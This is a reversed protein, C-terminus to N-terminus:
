LTAENPEPGYPGPFPDFLAPTETARSVLLHTPGSLDLGRRRTEESSTTADETKTSSEHAVFPATTWTNGSNSQEQRSSTGNWVRHSQDTPGGEFVEIQHTSDYEPPDFNLTPYACARWIHLQALIALFAFTHM